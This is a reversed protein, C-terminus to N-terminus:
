KANLEAGSVGSESRNAWRKDREVRKRKKMLEVERM